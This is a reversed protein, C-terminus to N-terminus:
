ALRHRQYHRRSKARNGCGKMDCWRRTGNKSRDLFLWTCDVGACERLRTLRDSTLLEAASHIVPWLIWNLPRKSRDWEWAFSGSREVIRSHFLAEGLASNFVALDTVEPARRKIGASFIRYIAQRLAVAQRFVTAAARPHRSAEEVLQKSESTKTVAEQRMWDALGAYDALDDQAEASGHNHLTNAFALCLPPALNTRHHRGSSVVTM